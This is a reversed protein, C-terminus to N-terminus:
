SQQYVRIVAQSEPSVVLLYEKNLYEFESISQMGEFYSNTLTTWGDIHTYRYIYFHGNSMIVGLHSKGAHFPFNLLFWDFPHRVM